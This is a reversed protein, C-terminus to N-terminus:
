NVAGGGRGPLVYEGGEDWGAQAGGNARGTHSGEPMPSAASSDFLHRSHPLQLKERRLVGPSRTACILQLAEGEDSM